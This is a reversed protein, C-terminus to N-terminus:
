HGVIVNVKFTVRSIKCHRISSMEKQYSWFFMRQAHSIYITPIPEDVVVDHCDPFHYGQCQECWEEIENSM